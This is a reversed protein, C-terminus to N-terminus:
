DELCLHITRFHNGPLLHDAILHISARVGSDHDIQIRTGSSFQLQKITDGGRGILKGIMSAPITTFDSLQGAPGASAQPPRSSSSCPRQRSSTCCLSSCTLLAGM